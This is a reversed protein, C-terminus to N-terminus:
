RMGGRLARVVIPVRTTGEVRTSGCGRCWLVGQCMVYLDERTGCQECPATLEGPHLLDVSGPVREPTDDRVALLLAARLRRPEASINTAIIGIEVAVPAVGLDFLPRIPDDSGVVHAGAAAPNGVKAMHLEGVDALQELFGSRTAFQSLPMSASSAAMSYNGFRLDDLAWHDADRADVYLAAVRGLLQPRGVLRVSSGAEYEATWPAPPGHGQHWDHPHLGLLTHKNNM